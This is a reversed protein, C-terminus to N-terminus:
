EAKVKITRTVPIHKRIRIMLIGDSWSAEISNRNIPTPIRFAREFEGYGLELQHYRIGEQERVPQYRIGRVYIYNDYLFVEIDEKKVGALNIVIILEEDTEYVDADPVWGTVRSTIFPRSISLMEDMLKQIHEHINSFGSEFRIKIIDM